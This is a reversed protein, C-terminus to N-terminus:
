AAVRERGGARKGTTYRYPLNYGRARYRDMMVSLTGKNWGLEACIEPFTKGALWLTELKRGTEDSRRAADATWCSRCLTTGAAKSNMGALKGCNACRIRATPGHEWERKQANRGPRANDRRAYERARDPDLWKYVTSKTVGLEAAVRPGSWGRERLERAKAIKEDRTV